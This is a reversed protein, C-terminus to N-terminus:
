QNKIDVDVIFKNHLFQRGILVPNKMGSRDALTFLVEYQNELIVMKTQIVLRSEAQGNSSKVKVRKKIDFVFKEGTYKPHSKDLFVFEVKDNDLEKVESCHISSTFAGTDIRAPFHDIHLEPFNVNEKRGITKKTTM